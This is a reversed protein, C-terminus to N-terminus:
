GSAFNKVQGSAFKTCPAIGLFLKGLHDIILCIISFFASFNSISRDFDAFNKIYSQYFTGSEQLDSMKIFDNLICTLIICQRVVETLNKGFIDPFEIPHESPTRFLM